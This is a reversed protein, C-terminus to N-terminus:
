NIKTTMYCTAHASYNLVAGLLTGLIQTTFAAHSLLKAYQAIKLNCLLLQAQYVTNYGYLIFYM